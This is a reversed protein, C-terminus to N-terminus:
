KREEAGKATLQKWLACVGGEESQGEQGGAKSPVWCGSGQSGSIFSSFTGPHQLFNRLSPGRCMSTGEGADGDCAWIQKVGGWPSGLMDCTM